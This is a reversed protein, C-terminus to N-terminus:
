GNVHYEHNGNEVVLLIVKASTTLDHAMTSPPCGQM